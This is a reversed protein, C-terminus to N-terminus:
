ADYYTVRCTGKMAGGALATGVSPLIILAIAGKSINTFDYNATTGTGGTSIVNCRKYIRCSDSVFGSDLEVLEEALTKFKLTQGVGRNMTDSATGFSGTGGGVNALYQSINFDLGICEEQVVVLIRYRVPSALTGYDFDLKVNFSVNQWNKGIRQNMGTGQGVNNICVFQAGYYPVTAGKVGTLYVTQFTDFITDHYKIETKLSSRPLRFGKRRGVRRTRPPGYSRRALSFNRTPAKNSGFYANGLKEAAWSIGRGALNAGMRGLGGLFGTKFPSYYYNQRFM